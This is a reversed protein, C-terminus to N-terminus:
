VVLVQMKLAVSIFGLFRETTLIATHSVLSCFCSPMGKGVVRSGLHIPPGEQFHEGGGLCKAPLKNSASLRVFPLM